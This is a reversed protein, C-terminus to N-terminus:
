TMQESVCLLGLIFGPDTCFFVRAGWSDIEKLFSCCQTEWVLCVEAFRASYMQIAICICKADKICSSKFHKSFETLVCHIRFYVWYRKYSSIAEELYPDLSYSLNELKQFLSSTVRVRDRGQEIVQGPALQLGEKGKSRWRNFLFLLIYPGCCMGPSKM